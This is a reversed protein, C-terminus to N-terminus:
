VRKARGLVARHDRLFKLVTKISELQKAVRIHRQVAM